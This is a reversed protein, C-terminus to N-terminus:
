VVTVPHHVVAGFVYGLPSDVTPRGRLGTGFLRLRWTDLDIEPTRTHNRVFFRDIPVTYGQGRMAEWRMEANSGFVNFLEPPLPKGIPGTAALGPRAPLAPVAALGAGVGAGASLRLLDRRSFGGGM